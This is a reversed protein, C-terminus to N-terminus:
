AIKKSIKQKTGYMLYLLVGVLNTFLVVLIWILKNNDKFDNRLIDILAIIPLILALIMLTQWIFLASSFNETTTEM